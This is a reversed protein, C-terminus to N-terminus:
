IKSLKPSDAAPAIPEVNVLEATVHGIFTKSQMKLPIHPESESIWLTMVKIKPPKREPKDEIKVFQPQIRLADMQYGAVNVPERKEVTYSVEYPDDQVLVLLRRSDGVQLEQSSLSLCFSVPDVTGTELQITKQKMEGQKWRTYYAESSNYNFITETTKVKKNQQDYVKMKLTRGTAPDVFATVNARMKWFLDAFKSTRASASFCYYPQKEENEVTVFLESEASPIGNWSFRYTYKGKPIPIRFEELAPSNEDPVSKGALSPAGFALPALVCL